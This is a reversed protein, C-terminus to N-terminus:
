APVEKRSETGVERLVTKVMDVHREVVPRGQLICGHSPAITEVDYEELVEDVFDCLPETDADELWDFKLLLHRRAMELTTHDTEVTVLREQDDRGLTHSFADSTFLTKTMHDYAWVTALLKLRANILSVERGDSVTLTLPWQGHPFAHREFQATEPGADTRFYCWEAPEFHAYIARVPLRQALPEANGVSDFEVGRTFVIRVDHLGVASAQAVVIDELAPITTDVLLGSRGELLLYANFPIFGGAEGPVFTIRGDNPISAGLVAIKGGNLLIRDSAM